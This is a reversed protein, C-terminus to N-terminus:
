VARIQLEQKELFSEFHLIRFALSVLPHLCKCRNFHTGTLFGNVSGNALLGTDVMINTVGCNDIFKGIAKFYSLMIHFSGLHVFINDYKPKEAFQIQWAPKAIALDYTVQMYTQGCEEALKKSRRLTEVVASRNTPSLNIPDLYSVKQKTSKDKVILSNFGVWMPTSPVKLSHCLMWVFNRRKFTRLNSPTVTTTESDIPKLTEILKPRKFYQPLDSSDGFYARRRRRPGASSTVHMVADDHSGETGSIVSISSMSDSNNDDFTANGSSVEANVTLRPICAIARNNSDISENRVSNQYVHDEFMANDQSVQAAATLRLGSIIACNDNDMGNNSAPDQSANNDFTVNDQSVVTANSM